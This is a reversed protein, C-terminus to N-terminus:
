TLPFLEDAWCEINEWDLGSKRQATKLAELAQDDTLDPRIDQVDSVHWVDTVIKQQYEDKKKGLEYLKPYIEAIAQSLPKGMLELFLKDLNMKQNSSAEDWIVMALESVAHFPVSSIAYTSLKM